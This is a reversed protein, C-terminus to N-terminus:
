GGIAHMARQPREFSDLNIKHGPEKILVAGEIADDIDQDTAGDRILQKLDTEHTSFLCTRLKGDATMRIRNCHDCFPNSVATIIGIKGKGDAFNFESAPGIERSNDIPVLEYKQRILDIIEHGFLVKDREWIQDSDLPMFEIFRMEFGDTRGMEILSMIETESFNRMAVANIKISKFGAERAAQLGALVEHLCDKRNVDRFKDPDLADLSVNLRKLGAKKLAEAQNKLFFANTTMAIDEIGDVKSFMEILTPLDKRMLPEGGTIRLRSIGMKSVIGAIRTLEEFSLLKSREMFEVNNEPMCYTCRFNCRDTVSIRLNVITRGMGDVLKRKQDQVDSNM